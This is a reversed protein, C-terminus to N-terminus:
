TSNCHEVVNTLVKLAYMGGLSVIKMTECGEVKSM